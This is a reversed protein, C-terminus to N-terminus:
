PPVFDLESKLRWFPRKFFYSIASMEMFGPCDASFIFQKWFASTLLTIGVDTTGPPKTDPFQILYLKPNTKLQQFRPDSALYYTLLNAEQGDGTIIIRREM